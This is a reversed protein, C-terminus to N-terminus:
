KNNLLRATFYAEISLFLIFVVLFNVKETPDSITKSIIPKAYVYSIAMKLATLGLFAYGLQSENKDKVITLVVLIVMSFAFFFLYTVPLPYAFDFTQAGIGPIQYILLNIALLVGAAIATKIFFGLHKKIM